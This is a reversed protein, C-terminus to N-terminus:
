PKYNRFTLSIRPHKTEDKEISHSYFDNTPPRMIYLSGTNLNVELKHKRNQLTLQREQGLSLGCITTGPTMEKDRHPSIGIKGNPYHQVVCVNFVQNTVHELKNKVERIRPDWKIARRLSEGNSFKITYVLGEDGYTCNSRKNPYTKLKSYMILHQYLDVSDQPSLFNRYLDFSLGPARYEEVTFSDNQDVNAMM